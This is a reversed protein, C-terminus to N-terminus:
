ADEKTTKPEDNVEIATIRWWPILAYEKGDQKFRQGSDAYEEWRVVKDLYKSWYEFIAKRDIQVGASATLHYSSVAIDRLYGRNPIESDGARAVGEYENIIEILVNNNTPITKM